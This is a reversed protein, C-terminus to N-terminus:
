KILAAVKAAASAATKDILHTYRATTVPSAHGLLGGIQPLSLGADVGFSAFSHRLDHIRLNDIGAHKIMQRWMKGVGILPGDNRGPIIWPSPSHDRLQQLVKLAPPPLYSRFLM